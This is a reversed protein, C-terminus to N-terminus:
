VGEEGSVGIPVVCGSKGGALYWFVDPAFPGEDNTEIVVIELDDRDISEIVGSPRKCTIQADSVTVAWRSEFRLDPSLGAKLRVKLESWLSM